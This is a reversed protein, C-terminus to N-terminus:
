RFSGNRIGWGEPQPPAAPVAHYSPGARLHRRCTTGSTLDTSSVYSSSPYGPRLSRHFLFGQLYSFVGGPSLCFGRPPRYQSVWATGAGGEQTTHKVM